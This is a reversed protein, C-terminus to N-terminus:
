LRTFINDQYRSQEEPSLKIGGVVRSLDEESLEDPNKPLVLCVSTSSEEFITIKMDVPLAEGSLEEVVVKPDKMLRTKFNDDEWARAIIEAEFDRRTKWM